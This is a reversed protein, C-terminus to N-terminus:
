MGELVREIGDLTEAGLLRQRYFSANKIGKIYKAFHKRMELLGKEQKYEYAYKAHALITKNITSKRPKSFKGTNLYQKIQKFLFPNGICGQAIGLGNANTAHLMEKAQEPTHIGGNAIILANTINSCQKIIDTNVTGVHGQKETRGHIMVAKINLGKLDKLFDLATIHKKNYDLGSRIKISVPKKTNEQIAIIIERALKSNAMIRVGSNLKVIQKAPCGFNLDIGDIDTKDLIRAANAFNVPNNGVLQIIFPHEKKVFKFYNATHEFNHFITDVHVFESYVIDAGFDRCVQRFPSDTIGDMPALALFPKKRNRLKDWFSKKM